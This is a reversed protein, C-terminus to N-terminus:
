KNLTFLYLTQNLDTAITDRINLLETDTKKLKQPLDNQLWSVADQVFKTMESDKYNHLKITSTKGTFQPRGYKSIYVEVFQDISADLKTVLDNTAVHRPYSLTQWHYIKIQERMTMFIYPIVSSM